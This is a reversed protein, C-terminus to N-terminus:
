RWRGCVCRRPSVGAGPQAVVAEAIGRGRRATADACRHHDHRRLREVFWRHHTDWSRALAEIEKRYEILGEDTAANTAASDAKAQSEEGVIEIGAERLIKLEDEINRRAKTETQGHDLLIVDDEKKSKKAM